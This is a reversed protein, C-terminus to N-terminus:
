LKNNCTVCTKIRYNYKKSKYDEKTANICTFTYDFAPMQSMYGALRKYIMSTLSFFESYGILQKENNKPNKLASEINTETASLPNLNLDKMRANIIEPTYIRPIIDGNYVQQAFQLVDYLSQEDLIEEKNTNIKKPRGRPLM